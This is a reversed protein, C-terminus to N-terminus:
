TLVPIATRRADIRIRTDGAGTRLLAGSKMRMICAHRSPFILLTSTLDMLRKALFCGHICEVVNPLEFVETDAHVELILVYVGHGGAAFHQQRDECGHGSCSDM